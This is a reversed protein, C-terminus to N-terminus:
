GVWGKRKAVKVLAKFVPEGEVNLVVPMYGGDTGTLGAAVNSQQAANLVLEGPTLMAPVTDTGRPRFSLLHGGDELYRPVMGGGSMGTDETPVGGPNYGKDPPTKYPSPLTVAPTDMPGPGYLGSASRIAGELSTLTGILTDISLQLKEEATRFKDGVIGQEVAQDIMQQTQEDATYGFDQTMQWIDQMTPQMMRLADKGDVNLAKLETYSSGLGATLSDFTKQDMLGLNQMTTAITGMQGTSTLLASVAPDNATNLLDAFTSSIGTQGSITSITPALAKAIDVFSMGNQQMQGAGAMAASFMFQGKSGSLDGGGAKKYDEGSLGMGKGLYDTVTQALTGTQSTIYTGIAARTEDTLSGASIQGMIQRSMMDGPQLAGIDSILQKNRELGANFQEILSNMQALGLSGYGSFTSISDLGLQRSIKDLKEATGQTKVMQDRLAKLQATAADEESPGTSAFAGYIGGIIGGVLAGWPGAASGMSAGTSAGGIVNQLRSTSRTATQMATAMQGLAGVVQGIGAVANTSMTQFATGMNVGAQTGQAMGSFINGINTLLDSGFLSGFAGFAKSMEDLSTIWDTKDRDLAQKRRGYYADLM